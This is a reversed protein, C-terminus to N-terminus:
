VGEFVRERCSARGDRLVLTIENSSNYLMENVSSPMGFGMQAVKDAMNMGCSSPYKANHILLARILLPDFEEKVLYSLEAAMRSVWPTSFSTGVNYALKGDPTFSPVGTTTLQGNNIGANGGYFVLDPKVISSPGPGIRTFPSPTESEAYDYTSKTQALAGVVLARVSDASKAIRSKPLQRMFNTCNGASKIILVNNEDQINDLAMGFDSFEDLSAEDTTGLSLNWIKIDNHREVAERIHEVLDDQYIHEKKEDPYVTADFLRVGPLVTYASRNLENGYEIIGAM